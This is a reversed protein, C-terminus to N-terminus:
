GGSRRARAELPNKGTQDVVTAPADYVTHVRELHEIFRGRRMIPLLL